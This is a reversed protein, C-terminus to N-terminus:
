VKIAFTTVIILEMLDTQGIHVTPCKKQKKKLRISIFIEACLFLFYYHM